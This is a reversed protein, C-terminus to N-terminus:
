VVAAGAQRSAQVAATSQKEIASASATYFCMYPQLSINSLLNETGTISLKRDRFSYKKTGHASIKEM